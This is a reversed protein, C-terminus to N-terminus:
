DCGGWLVHENPTHDILCAENQAVYENVHSMVVEAWDSSTRLARAQCMSLPAASLICILAIRVGGSRTSWGRIRAARTSMRRIDCSGEEEEEEEEEV